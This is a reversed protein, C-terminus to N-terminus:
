RTLSILVINCIAVHELVLGSFHTGWRVRSCRSLSQLESVRLVCLLARSQTSSPAQHGFASEHDSMKVHAVDSIGM